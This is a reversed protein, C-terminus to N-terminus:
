LLVGRWASRVIGMDQSRAVVQMFIIDECRHARRTWATMAVYHGTQYFDPGWTRWVEARREGIIRNVSNVQCVSANGEVATLTQGGWFRTKYNGRVSPSLDGQQGQYSCQLQLPLRRFIDKILVCLGYYACDSYWVCNAFILKALINAVQVGHIKPSLEHFSGHFNEDSGRFSGRSGCFSEHFRHFSGHFRPLKWPFLPLKWPVTCAEM